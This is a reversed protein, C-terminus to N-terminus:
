KLNGNSLGFHKCDDKVEKKRECDEGFLGETFGTEGSQGVLPFM